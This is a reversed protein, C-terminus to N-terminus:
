RLPPGYKNWGRSGELCGVEIFLLLGGIFPIFAVLVFYGSVDRDHLRKVTVALNSWLVLAYVGLM